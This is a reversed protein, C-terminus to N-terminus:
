QCGEGLQVAHELGSRFRTVKGNITEFLLLYKKDAIDKPTITLYHSDDEQSNPSVTVLGTYLKNLEDETNGIHAGSVTQIKSDEYIDVRVVRGKMVMLSLGTPGGKPDAFGCDHESYNVKFAMGTAARAERLTMGARVPGIGYLTVKSKDTLKTGATATNSGLFLFGLSILITKIM